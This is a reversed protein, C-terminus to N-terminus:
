QTRKLPRQAGRRNGKSRKGKSRALRRWGRELTEKVAARRRTAMSWGIRGRRLFRRDGRLGRQLLLETAVAGVQSLLSRGEHVGRALVAFDLDHLAQQRVVGIEEFRSDM